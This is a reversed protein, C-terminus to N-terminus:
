LFLVIMNEQGLFCRLAQLLEVQGFGVELHRAAVALYGKLSAANGVRLRCLLIHSDSPWVEVVGLRQLAATMRRREDMLERVPLVYDEGHRLLFLGVEQALTNVSWPQRQRGIRETLAVCATVYGLRLGPIGYEKTMSHLMVVNPMAAAVAVEVLPEQTYSAYSADLVFLTERRREMVDLLAKRDLM